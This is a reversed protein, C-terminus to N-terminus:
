STLRCFPAAAMGYLTPGALDRQARHLEYLERMTEVLEPKVTHTRSAEALQASAQNCLPLVEPGIGVEALRKSIACLCQMVHLGQADLNGAKLEGLAILEQTEMPLTDGRYAHAFVAAKIPNFATNWVKRRTRKRM